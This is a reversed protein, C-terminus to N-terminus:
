ELQTNRDPNSIEHHLTEVKKGAVQDVDQTFQVEIDSFMSSIYAQAYEQRAQDDPGVVKTTQQDVASRKSMPGTLTRVNDNKDSIFSGIVERSMNNEEPSGCCTGGM